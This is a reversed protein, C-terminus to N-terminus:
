SNTVLASFFQGTELNNFAAIEEVALKTYFFSNPFFARNLQLDLRKRNQNELFCKSKNTVSLKDFHLQAEVLEAQCCSNITTNEVNFCYLLM